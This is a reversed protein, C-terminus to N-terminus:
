MGPPLLSRFAAPGSGNFTFDSGLKDADEPRRLQFQRSHSVRQIPLRSRLGGSRNTNPRM